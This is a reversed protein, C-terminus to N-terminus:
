SHAVISLQDQATVTAQPGTTDCMFVTWAEQGAIARVPTTAADNVVCGYYPGAAVLRTKVMAAPGDLTFTVVDINNPDGANYTYNINSVTYGSVTQTAAGARGATGLGSISGLFAYSSLGVVGVAILVAMPRRLNLNFM